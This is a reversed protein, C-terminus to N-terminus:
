RDTVKPDLVFLHDAIEPPPPPVALGAAAPDYPAPVGARTAPRVGGRGDPVVLGPPGSQPLLVNGAMGPIGEWPASRARLGPPEWAGKRAADTFQRIPVERTFWDEHKQHLSQIYNPSMNQEEARGRKGIRQMAVDPDVRLYVFGDPILVERQHQM